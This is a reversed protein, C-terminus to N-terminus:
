RWPGSSAFVTSTRYGCGTADPFCSQWPAHLAKLEHLRDLELPLGGIGLGQLLWALGISGLLHAGCVGCAGQEGQLGQLGQVAGEM